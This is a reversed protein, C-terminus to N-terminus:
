LEENIKGGSIIFKKTSISDFSDDHSVIVISIKLEKNIKKFINVILNKNYPDLSATPEDALILKPKLSLARLIAVRQKEGGSLDKVKKDLLDNLGLLNILSNLNKEYDEIEEKAYYYPIKINELATLGNILNYNQFIFGIYKNRYLPYDKKNVLNDLFLYNGKFDSDLFGILNLITTKGSGSKGKILVIENESITLNINDLVTNPLFTKTVNQLELINSM